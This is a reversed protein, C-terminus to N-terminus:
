AADRWALAPETGLDIVVMTTGTIARGGICMSATGEAASRARARVGASATRDTTHTDFATQM